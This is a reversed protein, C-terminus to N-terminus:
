NSKLPLKIDTDNLQYELTYPGARRKGAAPFYLYGAVPKSTPGDQLGQEDLELEMTRRDRDTSAPGPANGGVGVGVGVGVGTGWTGTTMGVTPYLAIDDRRANSRKQNINAINRPEVPRVMRGDVRLAFDITSLDLTSGPAPYVAVEVVLYDSLDTSFSGRVQDVGMLDAAITLGKASASAPYDSPASRAPLGRDSAAQLTLAVALLLLGSHRM